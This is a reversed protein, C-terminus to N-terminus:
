PAPLGLPEPTTGLGLRIGEEVDTSPEHKIWVEITEPDAIPGPEADRSPERDPKPTGCNLDIFFPPNAIRLRLQFTGSELRRAARCGEPVRPPLNALQQPITSNGGAAECMLKGLNKILAKVTTARPKKPKPFLEDVIKAVEDGTPHKGAEVRTLATEWCRLPDMWKVEPDDADRELRGMPRFVGEYRPIELDPRHGELFDAFRAAKMKQYADPEKMGFEDRLYARFSKFKELYYGKANVVALLAGQRRYKTTDEMMGKLERTLDDLTPAATSNAVTM